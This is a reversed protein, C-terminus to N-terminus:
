ASMEDTEDSATVTDDDDETVDDTVPTSTAALVAAAEALKQAVKAKAAAEVQQKAAKKLALAADKKNKEARKMIGGHAGRTIHWDDHDKVYSRVFPDNKRMQEDDWNLKVALMSILTPVQLCGDGKWDNLIEDTANWVPILKDIQRQINRNM